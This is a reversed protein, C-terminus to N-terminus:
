WMSFNPPGNKYVTIIKWLVWKVKAGCFPCFEVHHLCVDKFIKLMLGREKCCNELLLDYKQSFREKFKECCAQWHLLEYGLIEGTPIDIDLREGAIKKSYWIQLEKMEEGRIFPKDM